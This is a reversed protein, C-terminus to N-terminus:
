VTLMGLARCFVNDVMWFGTFEPLCAPTLASFTYLLLSPLPGASPPDNWAVTATCLGAQLGSSCVSPRLPGPFLGALDSFLYGCLSLSRTPADPDTDM